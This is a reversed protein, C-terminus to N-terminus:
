SPLSRSAGEWLTGAVLLALAAITTGVRILHWHWWVVRLDEWGTPMTTSTWGMVIANIPQNGFRTVLASIIMAVIALLYFFLSLPRGLAKWALMATLLIATAGMVPLLTNLGRVAGQHIELFSAASFGSPDYGRWIGFVSGAILAVIMIDLFQLASKVLVASRM